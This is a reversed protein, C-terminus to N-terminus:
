RILHYVSYLKILNLKIQRTVVRGQIHVNLIVMIIMQSENTRFFKISTYLELILVMVLRISIKDCSSLTNGNCTPTFIVILINWDEESGLCITQSGIHKETSFINEAACIWIIISALDKLSLICM